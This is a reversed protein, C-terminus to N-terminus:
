VGSDKVPRREIHFAWNYIKGMDPRGSQEEVMQITGAIGDRGESSIESFIHCLMDQIREARADAPRPVGCDDVHSMPRITPDKTYRVNRETM